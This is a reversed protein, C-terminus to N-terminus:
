LVKLFKHKYVLAYNWFFVRLWTFHSSCSIFAIYYLLMCYMLSLVNTLVYGDRNFMRKFSSAEKVTGKIGTTTVSVSVKSHFGKVHSCEVHPAKPVEDLKIVRSEIRFIDIVDGNYRFLLIKLM